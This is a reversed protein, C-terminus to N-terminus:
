PITTFEGPSVCKGNRAHCSQALGLVAGDDGFAPSGSMGEELRVDVSFAGGYISRVRCTSRLYDGLAHVITAREGLEPARSPVFRELDASAKVFATEGNISVVRGAHVLDSHLFWDRRTVYGISDGARPERFGNGALCHTATAISRHGIAVGGCVAAFDYGPSTFLEGMAPWAFDLREIAVTAQEGTGLPGPSVPSVSCSAVFLLALFRTM